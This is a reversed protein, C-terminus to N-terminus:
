VLTVVDLSHYFDSTALEGYMIGHVYVEGILVCGVDRRRLLYPTRGGELIWVEDGLEFDVPGIGFRGDETGFFRRGNWVKLRMLDLSTPYGAARGNNLMADMVQPKSPIWSYEQLIEVLSLIHSGAGSSQTELYEIRVALLKSWFSQFSTSNWTEPMTPSLSNALLTCCLAEDLSQNTGPYKQEPSRLLMDLFWELQIEEIANFLSSGAKSIISVMMGRVSLKKGDFGQTSLATSPRKLPNFYRGPHVSPDELPLALRLVSRPIAAFNPVWSPLDSVSQRDKGEVTNLVDLYPMQQLMEWAVETYIETTSREYNPVPLQVNSTRQLSSVLGLCGYVHDRDDSFKHHRLAQVTEFFDVWSRQTDTMSGETGGSGDKNGERLHHLLRTHLAQMRMFRSLGWRTHLELENNSMRPRLKVWWFVQAAGFLFDWVDKFLIKVSGWMYAVDYDNQLSKLLVEQIAWGRSFWRCRVMLSFFAEWSQRWRSCEEAGFYQVLFPDTCDADLTSLQAGIQSHLAIFRQAFTEMVWRADPHPDDKGMWVITMVSQQYIRDMISVQHSREIPDNQNICIADIWVYDPVMRNKCATQSNHLRFIKPTSGLQQDDVFMNELMARHLFNFANENTTLQKGDCQVKVLVPPDNDYAAPDGDPDSSTSLRALMPSKWTYSLACFLPLDKLDFIKLTLSFGNPGETRDPIIQVLRIARDHPLPQYKYTDLTRLM